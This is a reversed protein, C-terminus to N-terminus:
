LYKKLWASHKPSYPHRWAAETGSRVVFLRDDESLFPTLEDRIQKATKETVIAWCHKHIACFHSNKDRLYDRIRLRTAQPADATVIYCKM